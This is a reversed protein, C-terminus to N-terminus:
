NNRWIRKPNDVLDKLTDEYLRKLEEDSVAQDELAMTKAINMIMERAHKRAHEKLYEEVPVRPVLAYLLDCNLADAIKYLNGLKITKDAETKEFQSISVRSMGAARALQEASMQYLERIMKIWGMRPVFIQSRMPQFRRELQRLMLDRM